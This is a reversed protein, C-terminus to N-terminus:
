EGFCLNNLDKASVYVVAFTEAVRKETYERFILATTNDNSDAFYLTLSGNGNHNISLFEQNMELTIKIKSFAHMYEDFLRKNQHKYELCVRKAATLALKNVNLM